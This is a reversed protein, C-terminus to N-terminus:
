ASLRDQEIWFSAEEATGYNRFGYTAEEFNAEAEHLDALRANLETWYPMFGADKLIADTKAFKEFLTQEM